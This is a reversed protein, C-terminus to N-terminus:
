LKGAEKLLDYLLEAVDVRSAAVTSQVTMWNKIGCLKAARAVMVSADRRTITGDPAFKGGGIGNVIGNANAAGVFPAYWKDVSVDSFTNDAKPALALARVTLSSFEARTISDYPHFLGDGKGNIIGREILAAVKESNADGMRYLSLEGSQIRQVAALAYFAQETAMQNAASGKSHCFSGDKNQFTLLADVVTKSNKVFRSDDVSIGLECLAVIVQACSEANATGGSSFGGSSSQMASLTSLAQNTAAKVKKQDQYKALAQLAMATADPDASGKGAVNWGGDSLQCALIREVYKQRTAQTKAAANQPMPYGGADLALLAYIASNVGQSVTKDYDGLPMTLDYGVANRADRGTATLALIVRSYETYKRESLVGGCSKVTSEVAGYYGAFYGKPVAHGSRALGLVAWEGYTSGISPAKVTQLLYSATRESPTDSAALVPTCLLLAASLLLAAFRKVVSM